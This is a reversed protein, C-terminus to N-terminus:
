SRCSMLVGDLRMVEAVVISFAVEICRAYPLYSLGTPVFSSTVDYRHEVWHIFSWGLTREGKRCPCVFRALCFRFRFPVLILLLFWVYVSADNDSACQVRFRLSVADLWM